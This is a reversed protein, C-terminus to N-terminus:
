QRQLGVSIFQVTLQASQSHLESVTQWEQAEIQSTYIKWCRTNACSAVIDTKLLM